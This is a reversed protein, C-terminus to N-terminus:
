RNLYQIAEAIHCAEATQVKDLLMIAKTIREVRECESPVLNLCEFAKKMLGKAETDMAFDFTYNDFRTIKEPIFDFINCLGTDILTKKREDLSNYKKM